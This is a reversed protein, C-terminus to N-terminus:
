EFHLFMKNSYFSRYYVSWAELIPGLKNNYLTFHFTQGHSDYIFEVGEIQHFYM